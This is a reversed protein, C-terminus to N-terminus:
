EIGVCTHCRDAEPPGEDIRKEPWIRGRYPTLHWGCAAHYEM